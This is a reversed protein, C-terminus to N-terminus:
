LSNAKKRIYEMKATFHTLYKPCPVDCWAKCICNACPDSTIYRRYEDPHMYVWASSRTPKVKGVLKKAYANIQKQRYRYRILWRECTKGSCVAVTCSDCPSPYDRM